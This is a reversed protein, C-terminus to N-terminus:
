VSVKLVVRVRDKRTNGLVEAVEFRGYGRVSILDGEEIQKSTNTVVKYNLSVKEGEVLKSSLERSIGYCASIVADLRLSAVTTKIEKFKKEVQIISDKNIAKVKVKERGVKELNQLIYKAIEKLVVVNSYNDKIIIDGVVERKVGTGLISGLVQRHELKENSEICIITLFQEFDEENETGVILVKRESEEFGGALVHPFKSFIHRNEEIEGHLYFVPLM